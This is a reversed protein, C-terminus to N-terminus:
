VIMELFKKRDFKPDKDFYDALDTILNVNSIEIEVFGITTKDKNKKIIKAIKYYDM